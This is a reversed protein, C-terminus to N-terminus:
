DVWEWQVADTDELIDDGFLNNLLSSITITEEINYEKVEISPKEYIRKM